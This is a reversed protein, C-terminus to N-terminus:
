DCIDVVKEKLKEVLTDPEIKVDYRTVSDLTDSDTRHRFDSFIKLKRKLVLLLREMIQYGFTIGSYVAFLIVIFRMILPMIMATSFESFHYVFDPIYCGAGVIFAAKWMAKKVGERVRHLHLDNDECNEDVSAAGAVLDSWTIKNYRVRPREIAWVERPTLLLYQEYKEKLKKNRTHALRVKFKKIFAQYKAKVNLNQIYVEIQENEGNKMIQQYHDDLSEVRAAYDKRRRKLSEETINAASFMLLLTAVGTVIKIIWYKIDKQVGASVDDLVFINFLMLALAVLVVVVTNVIVKMTTKTKRSEETM